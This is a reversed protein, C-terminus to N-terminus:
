GVFFRSPMTWPPVMALMPVGEGNDECDLGASVSGDVTSRPPERATADFPRKAVPTDVSRLPLHGRGLDLVSGSVLRRGSVTVYKLEPPFIPSVRRATHKAEGGCDDRCIALGDVPLLMRYINASGRGLM